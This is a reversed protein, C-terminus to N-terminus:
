LSTKAHASHAVWYWDHTKLSGLEVTTNVPRPLVERGGEGQGVTGKRVDQALSGQLIHHRRPGHPIVGGGPSLYQRSKKGHPGLM